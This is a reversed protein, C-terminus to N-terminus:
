ILILGTKLSTSNLMDTFFLQFKNDRFWVDQPTGFGVKDMRNRVKEPIVGKMADRLIVKTIGDSYIHKTDTNIMKEIINHDLFPFRTELSYKMGSKDAWLLNHEFKHEFHNLFSEKLTKSSYLKDIIYNDKLKSYENNFSKNMFSSHNFMISRKLWGPLMYFAGTTLPIFTKHVKYFKYIDNLLIRYKAENFHQRYLFGILYHYGAMYEDAGQGNLIVTCHQKALQMVKIEAYESTSPVPEELTSVYLDMDSLFSDITPKTFHINDIHGKFENIFVSEDGVQGAEYVASFSHIDSRGILKSITAGIASSDLGGSLCLGIPVDSRLQLKVSSQFDNKFQESSTYGNLKNDSLNYWRNISVNNTNVKISIKSGHQLKDIDKFFTNGSHNTRNTLLYDFIIQENTQRLEPM